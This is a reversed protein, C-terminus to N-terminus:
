QEIKKCSCALKQYKKYSIAIKKAFNAFFKNVKGLYSNQEHIVIPVRLFIAAFMSLLLRYGGFGVVASPSLSFLLKIAKFIALSLLPLFLLINKPRKLDIVHFILGIDHNIYKKCRLIRLLIFKM